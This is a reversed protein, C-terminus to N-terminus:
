EGEPEKFESLIEAKDFTFNMSEDLETSSIDLKALITEDLNVNRLVVNQRGLNSSPDDNEIFLTFYTDKGTNMYDLMIKRFKSSAYYVTMSGTGTWGNAKHKTGTSGLVKIESKNKKVNVEVDKVQLLPERTGNIDIYVMGLAGNIADVAKLTKYNM